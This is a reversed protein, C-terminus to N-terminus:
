KIQNELESILFDLLEMRLQGYEGAWYNGAYNYAMGPTVNIGIDSNPLDSPVPVPYSFDGSYKPWNQYTHILLTQVKGGLESSYNPLNSVYGGVNKCIGVNQPNEKTYRLADLLVKEINM